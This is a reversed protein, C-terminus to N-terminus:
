LACVEVKAMKSEAASLSLSGGYALLRGFRTKLLRKHFM